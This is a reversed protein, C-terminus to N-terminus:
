PDVRHETYTGPVLVSTLKQIDIPDLPSKSFTEIAEELQAETRIGVVATTVAPNALVFRLAVQVPTREQGLSSITRKMSGIEAESYGLYGKAPKDALLGKALSGRALVGVENEKLWDLCQEEPRRDLLSYQMMNSTFNSMDLWRRIVNPRISSIGYQLIKGQEKLREFAELTDDFPDDLTGGHLQYLDIHDTQLRQLSEDAAQLIYDKTPNWDWGSGGPRWQNGVKTALYVQGRIPKLAKGIVRENEGKDYLDATDFFNVGLEFAKRLLRDNGENGLDLSMCGLTVRSVKWGPYGLRKYEM